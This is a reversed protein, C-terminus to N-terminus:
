VNIDCFNDIIKQYFKFFKNGRLSAPQLKYWEKADYNVRYKSLNGRQNYKEELAEKNNNLLKQFVEPSCTPRHNSAVRKAYQAMWEGAFKAAKLIVVETSLKNRSVEDLDAESPETTIDNEIDTDAEQIMVKTLSEQSNEVDSDDSLDEDSSDKRHGKRAPLTAGGSSSNTTSNAKSSSSKKSLPAVNAPLVLARKNTSKIQSM